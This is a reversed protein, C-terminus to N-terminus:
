KFHCQVSLSSNPTNSKEFKIFKGKLGFHSIRELVDVADVQVSKEFHPNNCKVDSETISRM